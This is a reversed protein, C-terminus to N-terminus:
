YKTDAPGDQSPASTELEPRGPYTGPGGQEDRPKERPGEYYESLDAPGHGEIRGTKVWQDIAEGSTHNDRAM